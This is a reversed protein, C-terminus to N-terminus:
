NMFLWTGVEKQLIWFSISTWGYMSVIDWTNVTFTVGSTQATQNRLILSTWTTTVVVTTPFEAIWQKFTAATTFVTAYTATLQDYRSENAEPLILSIETTSRAFWVFRAVTWPTTAITWATNSLYYATWSVLWTFWSSLWWSQITILSGTAWWAQSYGVYSSTGIYTADTKCYVTSYIGSAIVWLTTNTNASWWSANFSRTTFARVRRVFVPTNYYNVADNAGSRQLVLHCVTGAAITFSGAFTVTVESTGTSLSAWSITSTANANVLTGSPSWSSDTEIRVVLNDAPAWAKNLWMKLTSFSVGNGILRMSQRTNAAVDWINVSSSPVTTAYNALFTSLTEAYVFDNAAITEWAPWTFPRGADRVIASYPVDEYLWGATRKRVTETLAIQTGSTISTAVENGATNVEINKLSAWLWTRYNNNTGWSANTGNTILSLGANWTQPPLATNLAVTFDIYSEKAVQYVISTVTTSNTTVIAKTKYNDTLSASITNTPYDYQIYNTASATLTLATDSFSQYAQNYFVSGGWVNVNLWWKKEVYFANSINDSFFNFIEAVDKMAVTEWQTHAKATTGWLGRNESKVYITSWVVDDFYMIERQTANSPSFTIFWKTYTPTVSLSFTVDGSSAVSASSLTPEYFNQVYLKSTPM